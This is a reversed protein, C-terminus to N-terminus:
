EMSLHGARIKAALISIWSWGLIMATWLGLFNFNDPDGGMTLPSGLLLVAVGIFISAIMWSRQKLAAFRRAFLLDLTKNRAYSDV